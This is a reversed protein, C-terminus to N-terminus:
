FSEFRFLPSSPVFASASLLLPTHDSRPRPLARLSSRPFFLSWSKSVFVRDLRKLTPYRRGNSWTFSKNRIPLDILGIDSIAGRFDLIFDANSTPGNKDSSSLLVNFDGMVTWHGMVRTHISRLELFFAPKLSALTPGYVNSVTFLLGDVKRKLVTNVSFSGVWELVCDFLAPNWASLLGGRTGVADLTRFDLLHFGCFSLFKSHSTTALKTEQVCIICCKCNRIFSKVLTCKASDNLGRVNWSLLRYIRNRAM